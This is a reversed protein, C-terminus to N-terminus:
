VGTLTTRAADPYRVIYGVGRHYVVPNEVVLQGSTL